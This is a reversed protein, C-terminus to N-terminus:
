GRLLGTVLGIRAAEATRGTFFATRRRVSRLYLLLLGGASAILILITM